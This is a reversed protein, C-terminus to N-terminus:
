TRACFAIHNTDNTKNLRQAIQVIQVVRNFSPLITDHMLFNWSHTKASISWKFLSAINKIGGGIYM